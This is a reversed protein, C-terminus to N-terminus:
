WGLKSFEDKMAPRNRYMELLKQMLDKAEQKGGDLKAMNKLFSVIHTYIERGTNEAYKLINNKYLILLEESYDNQLYKAYNETISIKDAKIVSDLLPKWMHEEIFVDALNSQFSYGWKFNKQQKTFHSIIKDLENEWEIPSFTNKYIRYIEISYRGEFYLDKSFKRINKKDKQKIYISLLQTKYKISTWSNNDKEAQLIGQNLHEIASKYDNEALADVIKINRFNNFHLNDNIIQEAEEKKGNKALLNSKYKLFDVLRSENSWNKEKEFVKIQQDIFLYAKELRPTNNAWDFFITELVDSCGYNSYDCNQIQEYLWDFIEDSLHEDTCNRLIRDIFDFSIWIAGGCQGNSDDMIQIGKICEIAIASVISFVEHLNNESLYDEAKEFLGDVTEMASDVDRYEIYGYRDSMKNFNHAIIKQYKETNIVKQAKSLDIVLENQFDPNHKAYNLVFNRLENESIESLITEWEPIAENPNNFNNNNM